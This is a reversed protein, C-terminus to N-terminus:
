LNGLSRLPWRRQWATVFLAILSRAESVDTLGLRQMPGLFALKSEQLGSGTRYTQSIKM